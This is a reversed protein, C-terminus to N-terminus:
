SDQNVKDGARRILCGNEVIYKSDEPLEFCKIGVQREFKFLKLVVDFRFPQLRGTKINRLDVNIM